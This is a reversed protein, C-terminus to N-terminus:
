GKLPYAGCVKCYNDRLECTANCTACKKSNTSNAHDKLPPDFFQRYFKYYLWHEKDRISVGEEAAEGIGNIFAANKILGEFKSIYQTMGSGTELAEKRRWVIEEGLMPLFSKRLFFKGYLRGEYKGIKDDLTLTQSFKIIEKDLFPLYVKIKLFKSIKSSFFDMNEVLDNIKRNLVQPNNVYKHLYNYGAFLEDSGDGIIITQCGLDIARRLGILQIVNNRIFIPDFTKSIFILERISSLIEEFDPNIIHHHSIARETVIASFKLDNSDQNLTITIAEKPQTLHLLISSDLGGSLLIAEHPISNCVSKLLNM